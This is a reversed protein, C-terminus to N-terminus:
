NSLLVRATELSCGMTPEVIPAPDPVALDSLLQGCPHVPLHLRCGELGQRCPSVSDIAHGIRILDHSPSAFIFGCQANVDIDVDSFSLSCSQTAASRVDLIVSNLGFHACAITLAEPLDALSLSPRRKMTSSRLNNPRYLHFLFFASKQRFASPLSFAPLLALCLVNM